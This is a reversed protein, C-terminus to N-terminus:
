HLVEYMPAFQLSPFYRISFERRQLQPFMSFSFISAFVHFVLVSLPCCSAASQRRVARPLNLSDPLNCPFFLVSIGRICQLVNFLFIGELTAHSSSTERIINIYALRHQPRLWFSGELFHKPAKELECVTSLLWLVPAVAPAFGFLL